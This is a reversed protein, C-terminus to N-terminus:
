KVWSTIRRTAENGYVAHPHVLHAKPVLIYDGREKAIHAENLVNEKLRM